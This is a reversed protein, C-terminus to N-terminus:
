KSRFSAWKCPIIKGHEDLRSLISPNTKTAFDRADQNSIILVDNLNSYFRDILDVLVRDRMKQDDCEHWEDIVILGCDTCLSELSTQLSDGDISGYDAYLSKYRAVLQAAKFYYPMPRPAGGRPQDAPTHYFAAFEQVREIAMQAAISTKGTGRIGVLAVIAGVRRLLGDCQRKVRSQDASLDLHECFRETFGLAKVRPAITERFEYAAVEADSRPTLRSLAAAMETDIGATSSLSM